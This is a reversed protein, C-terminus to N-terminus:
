PAHSTYSSIECSISTNGANSTIGAFALSYQKVPKQPPMLTFLTVSPLGKPLIFIDLGKAHSAPTTKASFSYASQFGNITIKAQGQGLKDPTNIKIDYDWCPSVGNADPEACEKCSFEGSKPIDQALAATACGFTIGLTLLLLKLM